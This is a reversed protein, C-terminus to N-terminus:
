DELKMGPVIARYKREEADLFRQAGAFDLGAAPVAM